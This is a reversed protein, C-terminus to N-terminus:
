RRIPRWLMSLHTGAVDGADEFGLRRYLAQARPNEHAVSLRLRDAGAEAAAQQLWQVLATGIGGGQTEAALLIDILVWEPGTRNFYLRGVPRGGLTVLRFDGKRHTKVFHAHQLAFQADLFARKQAPPWPAFFLEALRSAAYLDSLWPLEGTGAPPLALCKSTLPELQAPLPRAPPFPPLRSM